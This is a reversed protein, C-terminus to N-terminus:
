QTSKVARKAKENRYIDMLVALVLVLGTFFIQWQQQLGVTVLGSKLINIIFVGIVTGTVTGEGGALSTGGIVSAAIANLEYGGSTGPIVANYVCIFFLGGMATFLGSVIYVLMEWKRVDVGSLRTAEKNSGIAACYKGFKTNNMLFIAILVLAIIYFVAVPVGGLTRYFVWKYWGNEMDSIPPFRMTKLDSIIYSFGQSMMMTGMTAIFAPLKCYAILFGNLTGFMVTIVPLLLLAQGISWGWNNYAVGATIAATLMVASISLDIGGSTIIFTMGIAICLIFYSSQLLTDMMDLTLFNKGFISFFVFLAAVILIALAKQSRMLNNKKRTLTNSNNM